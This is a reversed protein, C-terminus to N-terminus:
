DDEIALRLELPPLDVRLRTGAVVALEREVRAEGARVVLTYRGPPLDGVRFTGDAESAAAPWPEDPEGAPHVVVLAGPVARGDADFALGFIAGLELPIALGREGAGRTHLYRRAPEAALNPSEAGRAWPPLVLVHYEGLALEPIEFRRDAGVTARREFPADPRELGVTSTLLVEYGKLVQARLAPMLEGTLDVREIAPLTDVPGFPDSLVLEVDAAPAALAFDQDYFRRSWVHLTHERRPLGELAFAGTADTYTWVPEDGLLVKVLAEAVAGGEPSRVFGAIAADGLPVAVGALEVPDPTEFPELELGRGRLSRAVLASVVLALGLLPLLISIRKM